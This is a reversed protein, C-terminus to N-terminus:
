HWVRVYDIEMVAPRPTNSRFPNDERGMAQTLAVIYRERFAPDGSTNTLCLRGNVRIEIRSPTWDLRYTNFEGRAATCGYATNTHTGATIPGWKRETPYHLYPISWDSHVSYTEAVDIEGYKMTSPEVFRVDPWLYFAEHLGSVSAETNRIRAEFRGYKQSFRRYTSVMGATFPTTNVEHDAMAPCVYPEGETLLLKLSGGEVVVNDADYCAFATDTGTAYNSTQPRWLSENLEPGDFDDRFSCRWPSGNSKLPRVGCTDRTTRLGPVKRTVSHRGGSRDVVRYKTARQKKWVVVRYHHKRATMRKARVWRKQETRRQLVLRAKRQSTRGSLAVTGLNREAVKLTPAPRQAAQAPTTPVFAAAVLLGVLAILAWVKTGFPVGTHQMFWGEVAKDIM